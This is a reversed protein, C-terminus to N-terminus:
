LGPKAVMLWILALVGSFAPAGFVLWCRYLKWYGPGLAEIGPAAAVLRALRMQIWVVPLWCGGVMVYLALVMKLWASTHPWGLTRMLLFGTILQVVVAPATFLWDALVVHRTVMRLGQLDRARHAMLMFFAIGAGTGLLVAASVIHLTKLLFYTM